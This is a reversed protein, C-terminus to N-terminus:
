IKQHYCITIVIYFPSWTILQPSITIPILFITPQSKAFQHLVSSLLLFKSFFFFSVLSTMFFSTHTSTVRSFASSDTYYGPSIELKTRRSYSRQVTDIVVDHHPQCKDPM